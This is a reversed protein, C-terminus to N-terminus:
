ADEQEWIRLSRRWRGEAENCDWCERRVPVGAKPYSKVAGCLPFGASMYDYRHVVGTDHVVQRTTYEESRPHIQVAM